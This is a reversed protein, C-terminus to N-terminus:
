MCDADPPCPVLPELKGMLEPIHVKVVNWLSRQDIDSSQHALVHRLGVIRDWPIEPHSEKFQKSIKRAAEGIIEIKREVAAQMVEDGLYEHLSQEGAAVRLIWRAADLMDWLFASDPTDQRPMSSREPAFFRTDESPIACAPNQFSILMEGSSRNSNM